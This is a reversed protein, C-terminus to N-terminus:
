IYIYTYIYIDNIILYDAPFEAEGWAGVLRRGRKGVIRKATRPWHSESSKGHDAPSSFARSAMSSAVPTLPSTM